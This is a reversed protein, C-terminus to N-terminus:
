AKEKSFVADLLMLVVGVFIASDAVNFAPWHWQRYYLDLFDIVHGYLVRDILNGVAGGVVLSLAIALWRDDRGLRSIWAVLILSVIVALGAFLWRQWGGQDSLFSFAAGENYVLVINFLPVVPVSEYLALSYEVLQKTGQDLLIVLLSLWLWRFM